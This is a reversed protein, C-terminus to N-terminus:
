ALGEDYLVGGVGIFGGGDGGRQPRREAERRLWNRWTAPWDSKRGKAGPAARWYDCFAATVHEMSAEDYGAEQAWRRMEATVEFPEPLRGGRSSTEPSEKHSPVPRSPFARASARSSDSAMDNALDDSPLNGDAKGDTLWRVRAGKRGAERREDPDREKPLYDSFDHIVYGGPDTHWLGAKVLEDALRKTKSGALKRVRSEPIYGPVNATRRHRHAWTLCLTYLGVAALSLGDVKPHDHFGDDLRAWAM